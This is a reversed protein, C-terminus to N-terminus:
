RSLPRRVAHTRPPGERWSCGVWHHAQRVVALISAARGELRSAVAPQPGASQRAPVRRGHRGQPPRRLPTRRPPCRLVKAPDFAVGIPNAAFEPSTRMWESSQAWDGFNDAQLEVLNGDPDAYYLSTTLGHDLCAQPEIGLKRLRDFNDFLDGTSAFEFATHHLGTRSVKDPDDQLGPVALLALRHNAGDNTLWAGVPARHNVKFGAVQGYWDIMEQLRTTKLNVHHLIPIAM